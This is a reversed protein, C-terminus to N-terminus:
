RKATVVHTIWDQVTTTLTFNSWIYEQLVNKIEKESGTSIFILLFFFSRWDLVQRTIHQMLFPINLFFFYFFFFYQAINIIVKIRGPTSFSVSASSPVDESVCCAEMAAGAPLFWPLAATISCAYSKCDLVAWAFDHLSRSWKREKLLWM